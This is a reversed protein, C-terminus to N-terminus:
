ECVIRTFGGCPFLSAVCIKGSSPIITKSTGQWKWDTARAFGKKRCFASAAPEGCNTGWTLCRDVRIGDITPNIFTRSASKPTGGSERPKSKRKSRRPKPEAESGSASKGRKAISGGTSGAQAVVIRLLARRVPGQRGSASVAIPVLVGVFVLALSKRM